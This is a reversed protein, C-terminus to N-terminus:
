PKVPRLNEIVPLTLTQGPSLRQPDTINLNVNEITQVMAKSCLGYAKQCISEVTEGPGVTWTIEAAPPPAPAVPMAAIPRPVPATQQASPNSPAVIPAVPTAARPERSPTPPRSQTPPAYAALMQAAAGILVILLVIGSTMVTIRRWDLRESRTTAKWAPILHPRIAEAALKRTVIRAQYGMGNILANDCFINIRRPNGDAHKVIYDLAGRSFPANPHGSAAQLRYQIYQLSESRNLAPIRTRVAIRQNLQRLEHQALKEDLEPQGALVIQVLKQKDTELNSLLRLSELTDVPMSQADDIVIITNRGADHLSLLLQYLHRILESTDM